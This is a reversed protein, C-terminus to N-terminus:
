KKTINEFMNLIHPMPTVDQSENSYGTNQHHFVCETARLLISNKIAPDDSGSYFTIFTRLANARHKNVIYNHKVSKYNKGTWVMLSSFLAIFFVKSLFKVLKDSNNVEVNTILKNQNSTQVNNKQHNVKENQKQHTAPTNVEVQLLHKDNDNFFPIDLLCFTLILTVITTAIFSGLWWRLEKLTSKSDEDFINSHVEVGSKSSSSRIRELISEAEKSKEEAQSIANNLKLEKEELTEKQQRLSEESSLEKIKLELQYMKLMLLEPEIAKFQKTVLSNIQTSLQNKRNISDPQTVDFREIESLINKEINNSIFNYLKRLEEENLTEKEADKLEQLLSLIKEFNAREGEFCFTEGLSERRILKDITYEELLSSTLNEIDVILNKQADSLTEILKNKDVM